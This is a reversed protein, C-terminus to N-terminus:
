VPKDYVYGIYEFKITNRHTDHDGLPLSSLMKCEHEIFLAEDVFPILCAAEWPLSRGNLDLEFTEPFYPNLIGLIIDAYQNPM